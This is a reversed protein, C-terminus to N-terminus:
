CCPSLCSCNRAGVCGLAARCLRQKFSKIMFVTRKAEKSLKGGLFGLVIFLFLRVTDAGSQPM